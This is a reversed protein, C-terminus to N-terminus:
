YAGDKRAKMKIRSIDSWCGTVGEKIQKCNAGNKCLQIIQKDRETHDRERVYTKRFARWRAREEETLEM